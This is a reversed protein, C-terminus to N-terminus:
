RKRRVNIHSRGMFIDGWLGDKGCFGEWVLYISGFSQGLLTFRKWYTDDVMYRSDLPIFHMTKPSLEISFRDQDNPAASLM